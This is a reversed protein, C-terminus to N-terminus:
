GKVSGTLFGDMVRRQTLVFLLAVPLVTLAALAMIAQFDVGFESNLSILAIPLTFTEPGNSLVMVPLWQKWTLLFGILTGTLIVPRALPVVVRGLIQLETAGDIRAADVIEGPLARLFEVFIFFLLPLSSTVLVIGVVTGLLGLRHAVFYIPIVLLMGPYMIKLLFGYRVLAFLPLHPRRHLAYAGCGTMAVGLLTAAGTIVLSNVVFDQLPTGGIRALARYGSWDIREPLLRLPDSLIEAQSRFSAVIMWWFPYVFALAVGAALLNVAVAEIRRRM